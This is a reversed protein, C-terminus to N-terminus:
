GPPHLVMNVNALGTALVDGSDYAGPFLRCAMEVASRAGPLAAARLQGARGTISIKNDEQKRAVYALTSFEAVPPVKDNVQRYAHSFEFVGGTHGPNLIIPKDSPWGAKA